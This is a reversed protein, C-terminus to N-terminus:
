PPAPPPSEPPPSPPSEPPPSPPSEEPPTPTTGPADGPPAEGAGAESAPPGEPPSDPSEPRELPEPEPKKRKMLIMLLVLVIVVIIILAMLWTWDGADEGPPQAEATLVTDPIDLDLNGSDASFQSSTVETFGSASMRLTYNGYGVSEFHFGGDAGTTATKVEIGNEDLLRVTAGVVPNGNEDVVKGDVTANTVLVLVGVDATSGATVSPVAETATVYGAKEISINYENTGEAVDNFQFEGTSNTTETWEGDTTNTLTVIAGLISDGDEDVVTGIITGTAGITTFSWPNPAPGGVLPNGGLDEADTVTFIHSTSFAFNAHSLTVVTFGPNWVETWGAPNPASTYTLTASNMAESFTVVINQGIGVGNAGNVPITATINPPTLDAAIDTTFNFPNPVTGAALPNGSMDDAANVTINYVTSIAFNNHTGTVITNGGSWLWTWGGPDPLTTYAFTATDIPESFTIQVAQNIPVPFAGDAPNTDTVNPPTVDVIGTTFDWPNPETGAGLPNGAIDDAITVNFTYTSSAAFDNHSLTVQTDGPNWAEVWGLPDPSCTFAFTGTDIAESFTIIVDQFLAVGTAGDAPTTLTIKPATTDIDGIVLDGYFGLNESGTGTMVMPWFSGTIALPFFDVALGAFGITDGPSVGILALPIRHEFMRHDVASSPSPGFDLDGALTGHNLQATDYPGDQTAWDNAIGAFVRHATGFPSDPLNYGTIFRDEEGNTAVGDNGTDFSLVSVDPISETEDGTVDFAVYLNTGDNKVL